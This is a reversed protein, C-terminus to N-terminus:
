IQPLVDLTSALRSGIDELLNIGGAYGAYFKNLIVRDTVPYSVALHPIGLRSAQPRDVSSGLLLKLNTKGVKEAIKGADSEFIIEPSVPYKLDLIDKRIADQYREEAEDPIIVLEPLQGLDNALFKTAAIAFNTDAVIGVELKQMLIVLADTFRLLQAWYEKEEDAIVAEVIDHDLGLREGVSRLLASTELGIPLPYRLYPVGLKEEFYLATDLGANASLVINLAAEGARRIKGVTDRNGSLNVDVGIRELLRAIERLNGYWFPDQGPVVGLLNVTKVKKRKAPATLQEVLATYAIDYGKYTNGKFGATEAVVIPVGNDKFEDAVSRTDDGILAVTCGTFVVFLDADMIELTTRIEERLRGEGGFVVHKEVTNTSPLAYGSVGGLFQFGSSFSIGNTTVLGCGPGAHIVPVARDLSYALALAGSLACGFRNAEIYDGSM